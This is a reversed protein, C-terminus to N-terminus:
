KKKMQSKRSLRFMRQFQKDTLFDMEQLAHGRNRHRNGLLKLSKKKDAVFKLFSIILGGILSLVLKFFTSIMLIFPRLTL